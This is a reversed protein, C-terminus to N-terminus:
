QPRGVRTWEYGYLGACRVTRTSSKSAVRETATMPSVKATSVVFVILLAAEWQRFSGTSAWLNPLM